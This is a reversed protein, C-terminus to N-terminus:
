SAIIVDVKLRVLGGAQEALQETRGETFRWDYQVNKGEVYGLKRMEQLFAGSSGSELSDPRARSILLGIRWMKQQQAFGRGPAALASLCMAILMRRREIM